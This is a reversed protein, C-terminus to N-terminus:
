DEGSAALGALGPTDRRRGKRRSDDVPLPTGASRADATKQLGGMMRNQAASTQDSLRVEIEREYRTPGEYGFRKMAEEVDEARHNPPFLLFTVLCSALCSLLVAFGMTTPDHDLRSRYEESRKAM